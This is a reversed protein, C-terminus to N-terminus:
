PLQVAYAHETDDIGYMGTVIRNDSVKYATSFDGPFGLLQVFSTNKTSWQAAYPTLTQDWSGGVIDGYDNIGEATDGNPLGWYNPLLTLKYKQRMPDVPQWLSSYGYVWDLSLVDGVIEGKENMDGAIAAPWDPSVPLQIAKWENGSPLFNWVAGVYIGDDNYFAGAVQGFDNVGLAFGYPFELTDLQHIKWTRTRADLRWVVPLQAGTESSWSYGAILTGLKNIITADSNNYSTDGIDALTGLDIPSKSKWLFGHITGDSTAAHGVVLGTDAISPWDFWGLYANLAGLDSWAPGHPSLLQITFLHTESDSNTDGQAVAVGFDNVGGMEAWTGGPYTGLDWVRTHHVAAMETGASPRSTTDSKNPIGIWNRHGPIPHKSFRPVGTQQAWAVSMLCAFLMLATISSRRMLLGGHFSDENHASLSMRNAPTVMRETETAKCVHLLPILKKM